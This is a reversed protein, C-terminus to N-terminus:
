SLVVGKCIVQKLNDPPEWFFTIHSVVWGFVKRLFDVKGDGLTISVLMGLSKCATLPSLKEM